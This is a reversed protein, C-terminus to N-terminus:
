NNNLSFFGKIKLTQDKTKDVRTYPYTNRYSDYGVVSAFNDSYKINGEITYVIKNKADYSKVIGIHEYKLNSGTREFVILDGPKPIYNPYDVKSRYNARNAFKSVYDFYEYVTKNSGVANNLDYCYSAFLACWEYGKYKDGIRSKLLNFFRTGNIGVLKNATTVIKAGDYKVFVKCTDKYRGDRTKATITVTGPNIGTVYGYQNVIAIKSNSTSWIIQQGTGNILPLKIVGVRLGKENQKNIFLNRQYQTLNIGHYKVFVKCTDSYRGDKTKATITVTGQKIGTM